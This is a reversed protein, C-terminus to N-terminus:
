AKCLFPSIISEGGFSGGNVLKQQKTLCCQLRPDLAQVGGTSIRQQSTKLDRISYLPPFIADLDRAWIPDPVNAKILQEAASKIYEPHAEAQANASEPHVLRRFMQRILGGGDDNSTPESKAVDEMYETATEGKTSRSVTGKSAARRRPSSSEEIYRTRLEEALTQKSKKEKSFHLVVCSGSQIFLTSHCYLGVYQVIEGM